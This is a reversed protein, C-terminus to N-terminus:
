VLSAIGYLRRYTIWTPPWRGLRRLSCLLRYREAPFVVAPSESHLFVPPLIRAITVYSTRNGHSSDLICAYISHICILDSHQGHGLLRSCPSSIVFCADFNAQRFQSAVSCSCPLSPFGGYTPSQLCSFSRRCESGGADAGFLPHLHLADVPPSPSPDSKGQLALCKTMQAGRVRGRRCSCRGIARGGRIVMSRCAGNGRGRSM